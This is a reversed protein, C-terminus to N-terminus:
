GAEGLVRRVKRLLVGVGRSKDFYDHAGSVTRKQEEPPYVSTIIIKCQKHFSQLVEFLIDGKIVPMKIDLLVLDVREHKVIENAQDANAAEFVKFGEDQLLQCYITRIRREDDVVVIKKM